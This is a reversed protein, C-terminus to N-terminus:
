FLSLRLLLIILGAGTVVGCLFAILLKFFVPKERYDFLGFEGRQYFREKRM